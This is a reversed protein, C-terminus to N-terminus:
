IYTSVGPNCYNYTVKILYDVVRDVKDNGDAPSLESSYLFWLSPGQDFLLWVFSTNTNTM